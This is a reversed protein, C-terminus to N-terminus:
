QRPFRVVGSMWCSSAANLALKFVRLESAHDASWTAQVDSDLLQCPASYFLCAADVCRWAKLSKVHSIQVDLQKYLPFVADAQLLIQAGRRSIAYAFTGLATNCSGELEVPSSLPGNDGLALRFASSGHWGLYCWHVKNAISIHGRAFSPRCGSSGM